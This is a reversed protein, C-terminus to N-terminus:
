ANNYVKLELKSQKAFDLIEQLDSVIKNNQSNYLDSASFSNLTTFLYKNSIYSILQKAVILKDSKSDKHKALFFSDIQKKLYNRNKSREAKLDKVSKTSRSEINHKIRLSVSLANENAKLISEKQKTEKAKIAKNLVNASEKKTGKNSVNLNLNKM